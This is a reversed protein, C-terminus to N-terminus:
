KKATAVRKLEADLVTKFSSLDLEGNYRQGNVFVTPTGEV